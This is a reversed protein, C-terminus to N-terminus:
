RRKIIANRSLTQLLCTHLGSLSLVTLLIGFFLLLPHFALIGNVSPDDTRYYVSLTQGQRYHCTTVENGNFLRGNVYFHYSVYQNPNGDSHLTQMYSGTSTAAAKEYHGSLHLLLYGRCSAGAIFIGCFLSFILAFVASRGTQFKIKM